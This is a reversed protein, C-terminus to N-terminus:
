SPASPSLPRTGSEANAGLSVQLHVGLFAWGPRGDRRSAGKPVELLVGQFHGVSCWASKGM